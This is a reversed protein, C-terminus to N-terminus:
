LGGKVFPSKPPNPKERYLRRSGLEGPMFALVARTGLATKQKIEPSADGLIM